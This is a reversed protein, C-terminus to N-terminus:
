TAARQRIGEARAARDAQELREFLAIVWAARRDFRSWPAERAAVEPGPQAAVADVLFSTEELAPAAAHRYAPDGPLLAGAVHSLKRATPVVARTAVSDYGRRAVERGIEAYLSRALSIGPRCDAPLRAIGADARTYLVDAIELLRRVVGGLAPSFAPRALFADPDIGAERLWALPLYIRGARADEGVDRAINSLQMAVGLDCARAVTAPARVCMLVAMMAGVTGAVRASYDLVGSLDEYRRGEADWAFGELLGEPLARPVNWRELVVALARDAPIDLPRGAYARDLRVRLRDLAAARARPSPAGGKDEAGDIADDALRCFAYLASAPDRVRRPLVLSATHFSRSGTRLLRRCAALDDDGPSLHSDAPSPQPM